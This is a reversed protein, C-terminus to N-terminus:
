VGGAAVERAGLSLAFCSHCGSDSDRDGESAVLALAAVVLGRLRPPVRGVADFQALVAAPAPPVSHMPLSSSLTMTGEEFPLVGPDTPHSSLCTGLATCPAGLLGFRANRLAGSRALLLDAGRLLRDLALRARPVDGAAATLAEDGFRPALQLLDFPGTLALHHLPRCDNQDGTRDDAAIEGSGVLNELAYDLVNKEALLRVPM